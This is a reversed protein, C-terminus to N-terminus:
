RASRASLERAAVTRAEFRRRPTAAPRPADSRGFSTCTAVGPRRSRASPSSASRRWRSGGPAPRLSASRTRMAGARGPWSREARAFCRRRSSPSPRWRGSPAPSSPMTPRAAALPRRGPRGRRRGCRLPAPTRWARWLSRRRSSTRRAGTRSSSIWARGRGLRRWRCGPFDLEPASTPSRRPGRSTMSRSGPSPIPSM